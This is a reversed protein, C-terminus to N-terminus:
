DTMNFSRNGLLADPDSISKRSSDGTGEGPWFVVATGVAVLGLLVIGTMIKWLHKKYGM